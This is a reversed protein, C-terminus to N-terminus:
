NLKGIWFTIARGISNRRNRSFKRLYEWRPPHPARVQPVRTSAQHTNKPPAPANYKYYGFYDLQTRRKQTTDVSQADAANSKRRYDWSRSRHKQRHKDPVDHVTLKHTFWTSNPWKFYHLKISDTVVSNTNNWLWKQQVISTEIYTRFFANFDLQLYLDCMYCLYLKVQVIGM